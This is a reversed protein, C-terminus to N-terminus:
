FRPSHVYMNTPWCGRALSVASETRSYNIPVPLLLCRRTTM